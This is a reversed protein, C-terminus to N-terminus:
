ASSTVGSDAPQPWELRRTRSSAEASRLGDVGPRVLDEDDRQRTAEGHLAVPLRDLDGAAAADEGAGGVEGVGSPLM